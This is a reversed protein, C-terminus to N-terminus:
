ALEMRGEEKKKNPFFVSVFGLPNRKNSLSFPIGVNRKHANEGADTSSARPQEFLMTTMPYKAIEHNKELNWGSTIADNLGAAALAQSIEAGAERMEEIDTM